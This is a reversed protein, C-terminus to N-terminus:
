NTPWSPYNDKPMESQNLYRSNGGKPAANLHALFQKAHFYTWICLKERKGNGVERQIDYWFSCELHPLFARNGRYWILIQMQTINYWMCFFLVLCTLCFLYSGPWIFKIHNKIIQAEVTSTAKQLSIIGIQLVIIDTTEKWSPRPILASVFHYKTPQRRCQIPNSHGM